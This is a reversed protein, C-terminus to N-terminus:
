KGAGPGLAPEPPDVHGSPGIIYIQECRRYSLIRHIDTMVPSRFDYMRRSEIRGCLYFEMDGPEFIDSGPLAPLERPELPHVLEPTVLIVLEQEGHSIRQFGFFRGVVPLDGIWPVRIADGGLNNQILGAVAMTQGERLEVTSSFSRANLGPVNAGNINSGTAADRTSVTANVTLRIRDRDTIIPTFFLQVGFPVFQVGQLGAGGGFGGVVPVPFQGGALFTATQGNMATLNPEAISRAYNMNRLARIALQIQGNDLAV